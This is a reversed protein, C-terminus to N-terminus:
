GFSDIFQSITFKRAAKSDASMFREKYREWAEIGQKLHFRIFADDVFCHRGNAEQLRQFVHRRAMRM